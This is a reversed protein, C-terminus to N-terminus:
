DAHGRVHKRMQARQEPTMLAALDVLAADIREALRSSAEIEAARAQELVPRDVQDQLLLDIKHRHAALARENLAQLESHASAGLAELAAKREPPSTAVLHAFVDHLQEVDMPSYTQEPPSGEPHAGATGAAGAALVGALLLAVQIKSKM